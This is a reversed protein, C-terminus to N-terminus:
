LKIKDKYCNEINNLIFKFIYFELSDLLCMVLRSGTTSELLM